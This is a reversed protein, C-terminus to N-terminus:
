NNEFILDFPLHQWLDAPIKQITVLDDHTLLGSDFAEQLTYLEGDHYAVYVNGNNESGNCTFEVGDVTFYRSIDVVGVADAAGVSEDGHIEGPGDIYQWISFVCTGNFAGCFFVGHISYGTEDFASNIKDVIEDYKAYFRPNKERHTQQVAKLDFHSLINDYAKQLSYFRGYRYVLFNPYYFYIGCIAQEPSPVEGCISGDDIAVVYTTNDNFTGFFEVTLEADSPLHYQERYDTKIKETLFDEQTIQSTDVREFYIGTDAIQIIDSRNPCLTFEHKSWPSSKFITFMDYGSQWDHSSEISYMHEALNRFIFYIHGDGMTYSTILGETDEKPKEFSIELESMETFVDNEELNRIWYIGERYPWSFNVNCAPLFLAAGLLIALILCIRKKM